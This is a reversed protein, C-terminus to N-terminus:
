PFDPDIVIIDEDEELMKVPNRVAEKMSEPLLSVFADKLHGRAISLTMYEDGQFMVKEGVKVTISSASAGCLLADDDSLAKKRIDQRVLYDIFSKYDAPSIKHDSDYKTTGDLGSTITVNVNNREVTIYCDYQYEPAVTGNDFFYVVSTARSLKDLSLRSNDNRDSKPSRAFKFATVQKQAFLLTPSCLLFSTIIFLFTKKM